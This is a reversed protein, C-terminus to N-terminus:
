HQHSGSDQPGARVTFDVSVKGARAFSLTAPLAGGLKTADALGIFMLHYGGPALRVTQGPAIVLGNKVPLMRHVGNTEVSQHLETRRAGASASVLTEPRAGTNTISVFGGGTMGKAAPRTWPDAIKLDGILYDKAVAPGAVVMAALLVLVSSRSLATTRGM